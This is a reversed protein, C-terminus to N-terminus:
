SSPAESRDLARSHATVWKVCLDIAGPDRCINCHKLWSGDAVPASPLGIARNVARDGSLSQDVWIKAVINDFLTDIGLAAGTSWLPTFSNLVPGVLNAVFFAALCIIIGAMFLLALKEDGDGMVFILIPFVPVLISSILLPTMRDKTKVYATSLMSRFSIGAKIAFFAEDQDYFLSLIPPKCVSFHRYKRRISVHMKKHLIEGVKKGKMLISSPLLIFIITLWALFVPAAVDDNAPLMPTFWALTMETKTMLLTILLAAYLTIASYGVIGALSDAKRDRLHLYPTALNTVSRIRPGSLYSARCTINGGHSHGILHLAAYSKLPASRLLRALEISARRRASQSNRGSWEFRAVDLHASLRREIATVAESGSKSWTSKRGFTGHVFIVCEERGANVLM